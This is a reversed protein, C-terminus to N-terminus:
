SDIHGRGIKESNEIIYEAKICVYSVQYCFRKSELLLYQLQKFVLFITGGTVGQSESPCLYTLNQLMTKVLVSLFPSHRLCLPPFSAPFLEQAFSACRRSAIYFKCSHLDLCNVWGYGLLLSNLYCLYVVFM